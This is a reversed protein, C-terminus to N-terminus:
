AIAPRGKDMMAENIIGVITDRQESLTEQFSNSDIANVNFVVQVPKAGGQLNSTTQLQDNPIIKGSSNPVFLEPGEEGVIAPQAKAIQGGDAFFPIGFTFMSAAKKIAFTIAAQIAIRILERIVMNAFDKFKFKGTMVFNTLADTLSNFANAGAQELQEMVTMQQAMQSKFGTTYAELMTMKEENFKKVGEAELKHFNMTRKHKEVALFLDLKAKKKEFAKVGEFEKTHLAVKQKHLSQAIILRLKAEKAEAETVVKQFYLQNAQMRKEDKIQKQLAAEAEIALKKDEIAKQKAVKMITDEYKLLETTSSAFAEEEKKLATNVAVLDKELQELAKQLVISEGTNEAMKQVLGDYLDPMELLQIENNKFSDNLNDLDITLDLIPAPLTKLDEELKKNAEALVLLKAKTEEIQKQIQDKSLAESTEGLAKNMVLISATVAAVGSAILAWGAPGSLGLVGALGIYMARAAAVAKWMWQALKLGVLVKIALMFKDSHEALFKVGEALKVVGKGLTKGIAEAMDNIAKENIAVFKRVDGLQKKIEPFVGAEMTKKKFQLWADGLMSMQGTYTKAMDESAGLMVATGERFAKLIHEKSQSASYRVGEEFGLLSKVGKERFLDAAAIGGSFTRQLQEATARFSLGTASAIDGTIKFIENLEEANDTVTLLLPASKAIEDLAFPVTGAFKVLTDFAEAGEEVSGTLFKLQIGLNEFDVATQLFSKAVKLAGFAAVAGIIVGQLKSFAGSTKSTSSQLRGMSKQVQGFAKQTKNKGELIIQEKIAM